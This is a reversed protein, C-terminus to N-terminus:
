RPSRGPRSPRDKLAREVLEHKIALETFAERLTEHKRELELVEASKASGQRLVGQIGDLALQRWGEVTASQVGYRAAIQDVSAKGSLLQLVAETRDVATRRGPRGRWGAAPAQAEDRETESRSVESAKAGAGAAPLTKRRQRKSM